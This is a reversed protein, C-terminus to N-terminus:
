AGGLPADVGDAVFGEPPMPTPSMSTQSSATGSSPSSSSPSPPSAVGQNPSTTPPRFQFVQAPGPRPQRQEGEMIRRSMALRPTEFIVVCMAFTAYDIYKQGVSIPLHRMANALAQGYRKSDDDNLRWHPHGSLFAIGEHMGQLLGAAASL